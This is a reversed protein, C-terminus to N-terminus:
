QLVNWLLLALFNSIDLAQRTADRGIFCADNSEDVIWPPPFRRSTPM